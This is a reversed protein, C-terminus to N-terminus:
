STALTDQEDDKNNEYYQDQNWLSELLNSNAYQM